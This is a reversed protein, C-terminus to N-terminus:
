ISDDPLTLGLIKVGAPQELRIHVDMAGRVKKSKYSNFALTDNAVPIGSAKLKAKEKSKRVTLGQKLATENRPDITIIIEKHQQLLALLESFTYETDEELVFPEIQEASDEGSSDNIDPITNM